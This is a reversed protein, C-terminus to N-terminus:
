CPIRIRLRRVGEAELGPNGLHIPKRSVKQRNKGPFEPDQTALFPEYLKGGRFGGHNPKLQQRLGSISNGFEACWAPPVGIWRPFGPYMSGRCRTASLKRWRVPFGKGASTETPSSPCTRTGNATTMASMRM